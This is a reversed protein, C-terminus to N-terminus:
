GARSRNRRPGAELRADTVERHGLSVEATGYTTITPVVKLTSPMDFREVTAAPTFMGREIMDEFLQLAGTGNSM